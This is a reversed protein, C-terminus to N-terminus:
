PENKATNVHALDSSKVSFHHTTDPGRASVNSGNVYDELVQVPQIRTGSIAFGRATLVQRPDGHTTADEETSTPNGGLYEARHQLSGRPPAMSNNNKRKVSDYSVGDKPTAEVSVQTGNEVRKEGTANLSDNM